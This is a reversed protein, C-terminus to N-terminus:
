KGLSEQGWRHTHVRYPSLLVANDETNAQSCVGIVDKPYLTLTVLHHTFDCNGHHIAMLPANTTLLLLRADVVTYGFERNRM